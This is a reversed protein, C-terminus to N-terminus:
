IVVERGEFVTILPPHIKRIIGTSHGDQYIEINRTFHQGHRPSRPTGANYRLEEMRTPARAGPAPRPTWIRAEPVEFLHGGSRRQRDYAVCTCSFVKGSQMHELVESLMIVKPVPKM